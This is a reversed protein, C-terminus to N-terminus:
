PGHTMQVIATHQSKVLSSLRDVSEENERFLARVVKVLGLVSRLKGFMPEFAPVSPPRGARDIPFTLLERYIEDLIERHAPKVLEDDPNPRVSVIRASILTRVPERVFEFSFVSLSLILFVPKLLGIVKIITPSCFVAENTLKYLFEHVVKVQSTITNILTLQSNKLEDSQALKGELEEIVLQRNDLDNAQTAIQSKLERIIQEKEDLEVVCQDFDSKSCSQLELQWFSDKVSNYKRQLKELKSVIIAETEKRANLERLLKECRAENARLKSDLEKAALQQQDLEKLLNRKELDKADLASTSRQVMKEAKELSETLSSIKSKLIERECSSHVESRYLADEELEKLKIEKQALQAKLQEVTIQEMKLQHSTLQHLEEESRCAAKLQRIEESQSAVRAQLDHTHSLSTNEPSQSPGPLQSQLAVVTKRHSKRFENSRQDAISGIELCHRELSKNEEVLRLNDLELQRMSQLKVELLTLLEEFEISQDNIRFITCARLIFATLDKLRNMVARIMESYPARSAQYGFEQKVWRRVPGFIESLTSGITQITPEVAPESNEFAVQWRATLKNALKSILHHEHELQEQLARVLESECPRGTKAKRSSTDLDELRLQNSLIRRLSAFFSVLVQRASGEFDFLAHMQPDISSSRLFSNM